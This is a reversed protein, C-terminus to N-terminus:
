EKLEFNCTIYEVEPLKIGVADLVRQNEEATQPTVSFRVVRNKKDEDTTINEIIM